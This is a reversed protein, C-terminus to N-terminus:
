KPFNQVIKAKTQYTVSFFNENSNEEELKSLLSELIANAEVFKGDRNLGLAERNKELVYADDINKGWGYQFLLIVVFCLRKVVM